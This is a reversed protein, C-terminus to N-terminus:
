GVTIQLVKNQSPLTVTQDPTDDSADEAVRSMFTVYTDAPVRVAGALTHFVILFTTQVLLNYLM